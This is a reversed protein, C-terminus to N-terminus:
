RTVQIENSVITRVKRSIDSMSMKYILSWQGRKQSNRTGLLLQSSRRRASHFGSKKRTTMLLSSSINSRCSLDAGISNVMPFRKRMGRRGVIPCRTRQGQGQAMNHATALLLTLKNNDLGRGLLDIRVEIGWERVQDAAQKADKWELPTGLARLLCNTTDM